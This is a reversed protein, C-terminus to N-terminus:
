PYETLLESIYISLKDCFDELERARTNSAAATKSTEAYEDYGERTGHVKRLYNQSERLLVEEPVQPIEYDDPDDLAPRANFNAPITSHSRYHSGRSNHFDHSSHSSHDHFDRTRHSM